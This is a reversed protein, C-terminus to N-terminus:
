ITDELGEEGCRAFSGSEPQRYGLLDDGGVFAFYFNVGDRSAGHKIDLKRCFSALIGHYGCYEYDVVFFVGSLINAVKQM